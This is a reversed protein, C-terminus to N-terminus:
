NATFYSKCSASVQQLKVRLPASSTKQGFRVLACKLHAFGADTCAGLVTLELSDNGPNGFEVKSPSVGRVDTASDQRRM